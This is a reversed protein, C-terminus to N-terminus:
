LILYPIASLSDKLTQKDADGMGHVGMTITELQNSHCLRLIATLNQLNRLVAFSTPGHWREALAQEYPHKNQQQLSFDSWILSKVELQPVTSRVLLGPTVLLIGPRIGFNRLMKNIGGSYGQAFVAHNQKLEGYYIKYFEKIDAVDNFLVVAPALQQILFNFIEEDTQLKENFNSKVKPELQPLPAQMVDMGELGLRKAVYQEVESNGTEFIYVPQKYGAVAQGFIDAIEIPYNFLICRNQGLEIWKVRADQELFFNKLMVVFRVIDDRHLNKNVQELQGSYNLAAQQLRSFLYPEGKLNAYTIYPLSSFQKHLQLSILGFFLDTAALTNIILDRQQEAGTETEPNYISRLLYVINTWSIRDGIGTTVAPEMRALDRIIVQRNDQELIGQEALRLFTQQSCCAIKAQGSVPSKGGTIAFRYQGGAFSLNLDLVSQTQWNTHKWVLIKLIFAIQEVGLERQKMFKNFRQEDFTDEPSFIGTVQGARWLALVESNIPVVLLVPYKQKKVASLVVPGADYGLPLSVIGQEPLSISESSEKLEPQPEVFPAPSLSVQLLPLWTFAGKRAFKKIENKLKAPFSQFIRLLRELVVIVAKCDALARHAERHPVQFTHMLNELNYSHHAPLLFQVLDLTDIHWGSLKIGFAELFRIDLTVGHGVIVASELKQQIFDRADAFKPAADLEEQTIGTLGLIKPHVERAPKFVQSWEEMIMPGTEDIRFFVWGIELIEDKTPDFGSLELDLSCYLQGAPVEKDSARRRASYVSAPASVAPTIVAAAGRAALASKM